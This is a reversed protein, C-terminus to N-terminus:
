HTAERRKYRRIYGNRLRQCERCLRHQRGTPYQYLNDGSYPHGKPCHTRQAAMASPSVGRLINERATVVELHTPNVCDRNRCLHDLQLNGPVPCVFHEYLLRHVYVTEQKGNCTLTALGYGGHKYGRWYMCGTVPDPISIRKSIRLFQSDTMRPYAKYM